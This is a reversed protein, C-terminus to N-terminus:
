FFGDDIKLAFGTLSDAGPCALFRTLVGLRQRPASPRACSACDEPHRTTEDSILNNNLNM